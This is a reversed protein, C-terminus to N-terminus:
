ANLLALARDRFQEAESGRTGLGNQVSRDSGVASFADRFARWIAAKNSGGKLRPRKADLLAHIIGVWAGPSAAPTAKGTLKDLLGLESLLATLEPLTYNLLLKTFPGAPTGTEPQAVPTTASNAALIKINQQVAKELHPPGYQMVLNSLSHIKYGVIIQTTTIKDPFYNGLLDLLNAIADEIVYYIARNFENDLLSEYGSEQWEEVQKKLRQTTTWATSQAKVCERLSELLLGWGNKRKKLIVAKIEQTQQYALELLNDESSEYIIDVQLEHTERLEKLARYYQLIFKEM